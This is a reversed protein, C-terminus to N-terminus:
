PARAAFAVVAVLAAATLGLGVFDLWRNGTAGNPRRQGVIWSGGVMGLWGAAIGGLAGTVVIGPITAATVPPYAVRDDLVLLSGILTATVASTLAQWMVRAEGARGVNVFYVLDMFGATAMALLFAPAAGEFGGVPQQLVGILLARMGFAVMMAMIGVGPRQLMQLLFQGAGAGVALSVTTLWWTPLAAAGVLSTTEWPRALLGLVLTAAMGVAVLMQLEGAGLRHLNWEAAPQVRLALLATAVLAAGAVVGAAPAQLASDGTGAWVALLVAGAAALVVLAAALPAARLRGSWAGRGTVFATVAAVAALAFLAAAALLLGYIATAGDAVPYVQRLTTWYAATACLAAGPAICITAVQLPTAAIFANSPARRRASTSM